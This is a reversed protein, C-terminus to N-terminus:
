ICIRGGGQKYTSERRITNVGGGQWERSRRRRNQGTQTDTASVSKILMHASSTAQGAVKAYRVYLDWVVGGSRARTRRRTM